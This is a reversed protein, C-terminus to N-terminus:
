FIEYQFGPLPIFLVKDFRCKYSSRTSKYEFDKTWFYLPKHRLRTMVVKQTLLFKDSQKKSM